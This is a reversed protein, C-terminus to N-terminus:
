TWSFRTKWFRGPAPLPGTGPAFYAPFASNPDEPDQQALLWRVTGEALEEIRLPGTAM